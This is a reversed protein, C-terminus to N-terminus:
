RTREPRARSCPKRRRPPRASWEAAAFSQSRRSCLGVGGSAAHVLVWDGDEIAYSDSALYHATMGQLISAAAIELSVGDPVPVLKTRDVAVREAYSGSVHSWAVREGTEAITGAGEVGIIAPTESGYHGNREYVDRYNVGTAEVDVVVQGDGSAPDPVDKPELVEPGGNREFIIARM